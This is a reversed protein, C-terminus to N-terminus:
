EQGFCVATVELTATSPFTKVVRVTWGDNTSNPGQGIVNVFLYAPPTGTTAPPLPYVAYGGSIVQQGSVARNCMTTIEFYTLPDQLPDTPDPPDPIAHEVGVGRTYYSGSAGSSGLAQEIDDITLQIADIQDQFGSGPDIGYVTDKLDNIQEQLSAFPKGHKYHKVDKKNKDKAEALIPSWLMLAVMVMIPILKKMNERRNSFLRQQMLTRNLFRTKNSNKMVIEKKNVNVTM